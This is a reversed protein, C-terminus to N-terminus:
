LDISAESEDQQDSEALESSDKQAGSDGQDAPDEQEVSEEQGSNDEQAEAEEREGSEPQEESVAQEGLDADTLTPDVPPAQHIHDPIRDQEDEVRNVLYTRARQWIVESYVAGILCTFLIVYPNPESDGVTFVALGGAVALFVVIAASVGRIIVSSMNSVLRGGRNQERIVTSSAAGLLGFGLMGTILALSLSETQLLWSAMWGFPGLFFSGLAQRSPISESVVVTATCNEFGVNMAIGINTRTFLVESYPANNL